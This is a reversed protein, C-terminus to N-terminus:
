DRRVQLASGPVRALRDRLAGSLDAREILRAAHDLCQELPEGESEPDLAGLADRVGSIPFSEIEVGSWGLATVLGRGIMGEVIAAVRRDGIARTLMRRQGPALDVTGLVFLLLRTTSAHEFSRVFVDWRQKTVEGPRVIAMSLSQTHAWTLPSPREPDFTELATRVM